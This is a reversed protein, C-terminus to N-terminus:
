KAAGLDAHGVCVGNKKPSPLGCFGCKSLDRGSDGVIAQMLPKAEARRKRDRLRTM